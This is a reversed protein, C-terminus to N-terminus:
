LQCFIGVYNGQKEKRGSYYLHNKYVKPGTAYSCDNRHNVGSPNLIAEAAPSFSDKQDSVTKFCSRINFNGSTHGSYWLEYERRTEDYRVYPYNVKASDRRLIAEAYNNLLTYARPDSVNATPVEALLIRYNESASLAAFYLLLTDPRDPDAIVSAGHNNEEGSFAEDVITRYNGWSYPDNVSAAVLVIRPKLDDDPRSTCFMFLSDGRDFISLPTIGKGPEDLGFQTRTIVPNGEHQYGSAPGTLHFVGIEIEHRSDGGDSGSGGGYFLLDKWIVHTFVTASRWTNPEITIVEIPLSQALSTLSIQFCIALLSIKWLLERYQTSSRKM